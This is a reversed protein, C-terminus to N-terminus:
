SETFLTEPNVNGIQYFALVQQTEVPHAVKLEELATWAKQHNLLKLEEELALIRLLNISKLIPTSLEAQMKWSADLAEKYRKQAILRTVQTFPVSAKKTVHEVVMPDDLFFKASQRMLDRNKVLFHSAEKKAEQSVPLNEELDLLTTLAEINTESNKHSLTAFLGLFAAVVVAIIGALWYQDFWNRTEVPHTKLVEIM